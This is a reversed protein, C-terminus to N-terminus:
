RSLQGRIEGGPNAATHVNAYMKGDMLAAAQPETLIATGRIPSTVPAAFPVAVPGSVGVAAPGHLHAATAPGTLGAYDVSYSLLRTAPNYLAEVTGKGDSRTAPVESRADLAGRLRIDPACASVALLAAFGTILLAPSKMKVVFEM